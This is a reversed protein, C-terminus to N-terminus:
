PKLLAPSSAMSDAMICDSILVKSVGSIVTIEQEGALVDQIKSTLPIAKVDFTYETRIEDYASLHTYSVPM